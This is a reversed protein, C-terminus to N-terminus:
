HFLLKFFLFSRKVNLKLSTKNLQLSTQWLKKAAKKNGSDKLILHARHLCGDACRYKKEAILKKKNKPLQKEINLIALAFDNINQGLNVKPKSISGLHKRYASLYLPTYAIPYNKAIRVWMEWDEGYVVSHFAGLAEYVARKVVMSAYQVPQDLVFRDLANDLVGESEENFASYKVVEGNENISIYRCFAAGSEPYSTFLGIMKEYFGELVRDDGHLIHILTGAAQHICTEFNRLSGVNQPQRIYGIRGQGIQQVMLSVDADTSADDIVMIQMVEEGLDQILVSELAEKLYKSCNYVPVMVSFLPRQIGEPLPLIEPPSTPIREPLSKEKM